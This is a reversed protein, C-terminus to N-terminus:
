QVGLTMRTADRFSAIPPESACIYHAVRKRAADFGFTLARYEMTYSADIREIDSACLREIGAASFPSGSIDLERLSTISLLDPLCADTLKNQALKLHTLTRNRGLGRIGVDTISNSSLDLLKLITNDGFAAAGADGIGSCFLKLEELVPHRSLLAAGADGVRVQFLCLKRLSKSALIYEMFQVTPFGDLLGLEQLTANAPLTSLSVDYNTPTISLRVITTNTGLLETIVADPISWDNAFLANIHTNKNLAAVLAMGDAMTIIKVAEQSEDSYEYPVHEDLRLVQETYENRAIRELLEQPIPM